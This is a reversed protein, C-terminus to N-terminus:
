QVAEGLQKLGSLSLSLYITRARSMRVNIFLNGTGKKGCWIRISPLSGLNISTPM